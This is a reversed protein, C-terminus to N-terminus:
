NKKAETARVFEDIFQTTFHPHVMHYLHERFLDYEDHNTVDKVDIGCLRKEMAFEEAAQEEVAQEEASQENQEEASEEAAQEETQEEVQKTNTNETNTQITQSNQNPISNILQFYKKVVDLSEEDSLIKVNNKDM